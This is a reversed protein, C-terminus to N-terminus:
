VDGYDYRMIPTLTFVGTKRFDPNGSNRRRKMSAGHIRDLNPLFPLDRNRPPNQFSGAQSSLRLYDDFRFRVAADAQTGRRKIRDFDVAILADRLEFRFAAYFFVEDLAGLLCDAALM